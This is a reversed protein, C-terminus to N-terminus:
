LVAEILYPGPTAFSEALAASFSKADTARVAAV